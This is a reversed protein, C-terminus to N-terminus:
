IFPRLMELLCEILNRDASIAIASRSDKARTKAFLQFTEYAEKAYKKKITEDLALYAKPFRCLSDNSM